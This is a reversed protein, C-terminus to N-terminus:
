PSVWEPVGWEGSGCERVGASGVGASGRGPGGRGGGEGEDTMVTNRYLCSLPGPGASGDDSVRRPRASLAPRACRAPPRTLRLPPPGHRPVRLACPAAAAAAAAPPALPVYPQQVTEGRIAHPPQDGEEPRQQFGGAGQLDQGVPHHPRQAHDRHHQQDYPAPCPGDFQHALGALEPQDGDGGGGDADVPADVDPGHVVVLDHLRGEAVEDIRQDGDRDPHQQELLPQARHLPRRDPDTEGRDDHEGDAIPSRGPDRQDEGEGEGGISQRLLLDIEAAQLRQGGLGGHLEQGRQAKQEPQAAPALRREAGLARPM